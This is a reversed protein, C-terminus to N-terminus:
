KKDCYRNGALPYELPPSSHIVTFPMAGTMGRISSAILGDVEVKQITSSLDWPEDTLTWLWLRLQQLEM